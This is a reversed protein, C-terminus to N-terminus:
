MSSFENFFTFDKIYILYINPFIKNKYMLNVSISYRCNKQVFKFLGSVIVWCVECSSIM